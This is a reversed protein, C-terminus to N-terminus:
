LAFMFGLGLILGGPQIIRLEKKANDSLVSGDTIEYSNSELPIAYGFELFLRNYNHYVWSYTANLNLTGAKLLDITVDKTGSTTELKLKVGKQGMCISYSSGVGWGDSSRNELKIGATLKAGWSGSGCGLKLVLGKHISVDAGIGLLGTYNNIGAGVGLYFKPLTDKSSTFPEKAMLNTGIILALFLLVPTKM